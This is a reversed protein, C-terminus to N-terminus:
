NVNEEEIHESLSLKKHVVIGYFPSDQGVIHTPRVIYHDLIPFRRGALEKNYYPIPYNNLEGIVAGGIGVKNCCNAVLPYLGDVPKNYSHPNTPSKYSVEFDGLRKSFSAGLYGIAGSFKNMIIDKTNELIFLLVCWSPSGWDISGCTWISSAIGASILQARYIVEDPVGSIMSSFVSVSFLAPHFNMSFVLEYQSQLPLYSGDAAELGAEIIVNVVSNHPIAYDHFTITVTSSSLTVDYTTTDLFGEEPIDLVDGFKIVPTLYVFVHSALPDSVDDLPPTNFTLTVESGTYNSANQEPYTSIVQLSLSASGGGEGSGGDGSDVSDESSSNYKLNYYFDYYYADLTDGGDFKVGYTGGVVVLKIRDTIHQTDGITLIVSSPDTSDVAVTYPLPITYNTYSLLVSSSSISTPEVNASFTVKITDGSYVDSNEAPTLSSINAM